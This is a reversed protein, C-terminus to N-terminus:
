LYLSVGIGPYRINAYTATTLLIDVKGDLRVNEGASDARWYQERWRDFWAEGESGRLDIGDVRMVDGFLELSMPQGSAEDPPAEISTHVILYKLLPAIPISPVPWDIGPLCELLLRGVERSVLDQDEVAFCRGILPPIEYARIRPYYSEEDLLSESAMMDDIGYRRGLYSSMLGQPPSIISESPLDKPLLVAPKWAM